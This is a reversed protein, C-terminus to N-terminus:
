LIGWQLGLAGRLLFVKTLLNTDRSGSAGGDESNTSGVGRPARITLPVETVVM